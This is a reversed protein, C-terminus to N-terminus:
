FSNSFQLIHKFYLNPDKNVESGKEHVFFSFSQTSIFVSFITIVLSIFRNILGKKQGHFVLDDVENPTSVPKRSFCQKLLNILFKGKKM